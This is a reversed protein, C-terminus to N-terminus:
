RIVINFKEEAEKKSMVNLVEAWIGDHFIINGESDRLAMQGQNKGAKITEYDFFNSSVKVNLNYSCGNYIDSMFLGEKYGIKRAEEILREEVESNSAEYDIESNFQYEKKENIHWQGFGSFGYQIINNKFYMLWKQSDESNTKAWGTFKTFHEPFLEKLTKNQNKIIFEKEM